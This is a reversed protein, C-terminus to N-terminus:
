CTRVTKFIFIEEMYIYIYIYIYIDIYVRVLPGFAVPELVTYVPIEHFYLDLYDNRSNTRAKIRSKYANIVNYFRPLVYM